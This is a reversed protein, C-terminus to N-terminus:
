ARGVCGWWWYRGRTLCFQTQVRTLAVVFGCCATCSVQKRRDTTKRGIVHHDGGVVDHPNLSFRTLIVLYDNSHCHKSQSGALQTYFAQQEFHRRQWTIYPSWLETLGLFFFRVDDVVVRNLIWQRLTIRSSAWTMLFWLVAREIPAQLSLPPVHKICHIVTHEYSTTFPTSLTREGCLGGIPPSQFVWVSGAWLSRCGLWIWEDQEMQHNWLTSLCQPVYLNAPFTSMGLLFFHAMPDSVIYSHM